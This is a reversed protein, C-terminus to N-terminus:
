GDNTIRWVRMAKTGEVPCAVQCAGCGNCKQSDIIPYAIYREEDWRIQVAGFPCARMCADCDKQELALLCLSADLLAEGIVYARKQKLSMSQLAGTPCAQMCKMCDELCYKRDYHIEPTLLGALGADGVSPHIIRSPCSRVCNGCRTCVGSFVKEDVAGPPRLLTEKPKTARLRGTWFGLGLGAILAIFARRPRVCPAGTSIEASKTFHLRIRSLLEQAGGLPCLRSCWVAGSSVSFVILVAALFGSLIDAAIRVAFIGSFISLPDMWLLIPYGFAASALTILAAYQGLQPCRTWWRTQKWGIRSAGELLLGMPCAYRCFWRRRLLAILAFIVGIGIGASISRTALSSCIAIFASSQVFLKPNSWLLLVAAAFFTLRVALRPPRKWDMM